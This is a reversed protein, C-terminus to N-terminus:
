KEKSAAELKAGLATIEADTIDSLKKGGAMLQAVAAELFNEAVVARVTATKKKTLSDLAKQNEKILTEPAKIRKLVRQQASLFAKTAKDREEGPPADSVAQRLGKTDLAIAAAQLYDRDTPLDAGPRGLDARIKQAQLIDRQKRAQGDLTSPYVQAVRGQDLADNDRQIRKELRSLEAIEGTLEQEPTLEGAKASEFKERALDLEAQNLRNQEATTAIQQEKLQQEITKGPDTVGLEERTQLIQATLSNPFSAIYAGVQAPGLQQLDDAEDQAASINAQRQAANGLEQQGLVGAQLAESRINSAEARAGSEQSLILNAESVRARRGALENEVAQQRIARNNEAVEQHARSIEGQVATTALAVSLPDTSGAAKAAAEGLDRLETFEFGLANPIGPTPPGLKAGPKEGEGGKADVADRALQRAIELDRVRDADAQAKIQGKQVALAQVQAQVSRERDAEAFARRQRSNKLESSLAALRFGGLVGQTIPKDSFASM